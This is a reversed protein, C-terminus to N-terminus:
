TPARPPVAAHHERDHRGLGAGAGGRAAHRRARGRPRRPRRRLRHRRPRHTVPAYNNNFGLGTGALARPLGDPRHPLGARRPVVPGDPRPQPDKAYAYVLGSGLSLKPVVSPAREDSTWRWRARRARRDVDVRAIGPSRRAHRAPGVAPRRLRPQERRDALPRRHAALQRDARAAARVGPHAASRAGAAHGHPRARYVVVNM